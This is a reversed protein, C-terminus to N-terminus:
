HKAHDSTGAGGYWQKSWGLLKSRVETQKTKMDNCMTKMEDKQSRKLCQKSKAIAQKHHEAM